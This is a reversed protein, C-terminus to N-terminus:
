GESAGVICLNRGSAKCVYLFGDARDFAWQAPKGREMLAGGISVTTKIRNGDALVSSAEVMKRCREAIKKLSEIDTGRALVLFEDGGWRGLLDPPRLAHTLTEAVTKLVQDGVSHGFQDNVDKFHDIDVVLLGARTGFEDMEQLVHTMAMTIHRRNSLLTLPDLYAETELDQARREINKKSTIDSFVEVAGIIAGSNDRIPSVRVSVPVRHGSKHRLYVESERRKGDKITAALPCAGQCLECGENNVHMLLNDFCASGVVEESKYGTLEEAGRNWYAIKRDRDVFYVGDFLNDCLQSQLSSTSGPGLTLEQPCAEPDESSESTSM